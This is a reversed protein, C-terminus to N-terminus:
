NPDKDKKDFNERMIKDEESIIVDLNLWKGLSPQESM